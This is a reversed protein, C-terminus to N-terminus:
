RPRSLTFVAYATAALLGTAILYFGVIANRSVYEAFANTIALALVLATLIAARGLNTM